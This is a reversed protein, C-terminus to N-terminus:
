SRGDYYSTKGDVVYEVGTKNLKFKAKANTTFEYAEGNSIVEGTSTSPALVFSTSNTVDLSNVLSDGNGNDLSITGTGDLNQVTLIFGSLTTSLASGDTKTTNDGADVALTIKATGDTNGFTDTVSPTVILPVIALSKAVSTTNVNLNDAIKENSEVGKAYNKDVKVATVKAAAIASGIKEYGITETVIGLRLEDSTTPIITNTM